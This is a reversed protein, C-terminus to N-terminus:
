EGHAHNGTQHRTCVVALEQIRTTLTALSEERLQERREFRDSMRDLTATYEARADKSEEAHDKLLKPIHKCSLFLLLSIVCALATLNAWPGFSGFETSVAEALVSCLSLIGLLLTVKM